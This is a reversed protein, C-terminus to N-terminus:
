LPQVAVRAGPRYGELESAVLVWGDARALAQLPFFGSAVPEFGGECARVPVVEAMGITSVIKRVLIGKVGPNVLAYGTLRALLRRGVVVFVAFAADLRGPLLLVPRSGVSGIAATEGPLLGFGRINLHGVRTLVEVSQDRRGSGTGGVLISAHVDDKVLLGALESDSAPEPALESRAGSQEVMRAILAAVSSVGGHTAVIRVRPECVWCRVLDALRLITIDIERLREGRRRLPLQPQADAGAPLVAADLLAPSIAHAVANTFVVADAPLIADTDPPLPDGVEVWTPAPRLPQPAYPGADAVIDSRIAWGDRLATMQAPRCGAVRLDAALVRGAAATLELERPEVPSALADVGALVDRLPVLGTLPQPPDSPAIM